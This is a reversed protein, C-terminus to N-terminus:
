PHFRQALLVARLVVPQGGAHHPRHVHPGDVLRVFLRQALQPARDLQHRAVVGGGRGQRDGLGRGVPQAAARGRGRGRGVEGHQGAGAVERGQGGGVGEGGGDLPHARSGGREGNEPGNAASYRAFPGSFASVTLTATESTAM